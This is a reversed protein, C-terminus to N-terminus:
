FPIPNHQFFTNLFTRRMHEDSDKDFFATKLAMGVTKDGDPAQWTVALGAGRENAQTVTLRMVPAADGVLHFVRDPYRAQLVAVAEKCFQRAADPSVASDADCVVSIDHFGSAGDASASSGLISTMVVLGGLIAPFVTTLTSGMLRM